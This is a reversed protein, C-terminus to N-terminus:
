WSSCGGSAGSICSRLFLFTWTCRLKPLRVGRRQNPPAHLNQPGFARAVVADHRRKVLVVALVVYYVVVSVLFPAHKDGIIQQETSKELVTM